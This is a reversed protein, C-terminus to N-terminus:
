LAYLNPQIKKFRNIIINCYEKSQEIAIWKRGLIECAIPTTGSGAFPDLVIENPNSNVKILHQILSLPKETPHNTEKYSSANPSIFYNHMYKQDLFNKIKGEGKTGVWIHETGSNWNVKRFSPVPNTKVWVYITRAKINYKPALILDFLGTKQKDFFIYIWSKDKLIRALQAFWTECWNFYEKDSQWARDWEGFDLGIDMRKEWNYHALKRHIKKGAVSIKYPPDAIILDISASQIKPLINLCDDCYLIGNQTQFIINQAPFNYKLSDKMSLYRQNPLQGM